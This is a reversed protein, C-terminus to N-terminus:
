VGETKLIPECRTRIKWEAQIEAMSARAQAAEAVCAIIDPVVKTRVESKGDIMIMVILLYMVNM